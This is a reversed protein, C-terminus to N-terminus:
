KVANGDLHYIALHKGDPGILERLSFKGEVSVARTSFETTAPPVM